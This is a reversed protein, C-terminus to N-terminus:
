ICAVTDPKTTNPVHHMDHVKKLAVRDMNMYSFSGRIIASACFNGSNYGINGLVNVNPANNGVNNNVGIKNNVGGNNNGGINNGGGNDILDDTIRSVNDQLTEITSGM